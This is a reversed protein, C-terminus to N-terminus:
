LDFLFNRNGFQGILGDRMALLAARGRAPNGSLAARLSVLVCITCWKLTQSVIRSRRHKRVFLFRNRLNYYLYLANRPPRSDTNPDHTALVSVDVAVRRGLKRARECFDAMEGSFFFDEDLLGIEGIVRARVLAVMGPVYDTDRLVNPSQPNASGLPVRTNLHRSVDRGGAFRKSSSQSTEEVAPGLIAVGPTKALRNLLRSLNRQSIWADSNLLLVADCGIALAHSIGINNGGAFGLNMANLLLEHEGLATRMSRINEGIDGNCVIVLAPRLSGWRRIRHVLKETQPWGYWNLVIVALKRVKPM